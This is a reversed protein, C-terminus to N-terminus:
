NNSAIQALYEEYTINWEVPCNWNTWEGPWGNPKASAECYITLNDCSDFAYYGIMTVSDPIYISTLSSCNYFARDGIETLQSNEGINVIELNSCNFFAYEGITTVSNPITVSVINDNDYFAM